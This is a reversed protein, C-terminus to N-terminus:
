RQERTLARAGDALRSALPEGIHWRFRERASVWERQAYALPGTRLRSPVQGTPVRVVVDSGILLRRLLRSYIGHHAPELWPKSPLYQHLLHPQVGDDYSCRLTTADLLKLGEFPPTAALRQPLATVRRADIRAAIIANLADQDGFLFPYDPVNRRWYTRDFDILKQRDEMLSLVETGQSRDVCVAGSCLYPRRPTPGLRLLEGWEPVFRDIPNRFAVLRGRSAEEILPSLSRTVIMDADLLVMVDAPFRLPGVTKQLWPPTRTPSDVLTTHPALVARQDANLGCDLVLVPDAHGVLRLSNLLAVAGLFYRDDVVCYFAIPPIASGEWSAETLDV